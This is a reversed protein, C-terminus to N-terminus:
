SSKDSTAKQGIRQRLHELRAQQTQSIQAQTNKIETTKNQGGELARVTEEDLDSYRVTDLNIKLYCSKGVGNSSRTKLFQVKLIGKDMMAKDQYLTFVNDATNIKSIGGAIMGQHHQEEGVGGRNLQSATICCFNYIRSLNRLDEAVYKDRLFQNNNDVSKDRPAVLDLYDVAVIAPTVGTVTIFERIYAEIEITSTQAPFNKVWLQGASRSKVAITSAVEDLHAFIERGDFGSVMSDFRKCIMAESLELSIYLAHEGREVWNLCVNALFFSKGGGSNAAAISLAGPEIGGYLLKDIDRFGMPKLNNVLMAKIRAKPDAWYSVGMDRKLSLLVADKIPEVLNDLENNSIKESAAFVANVVANFRCHAEVEDLIWSRRQPTIPEEPKNLSIGTSVNIIDLPPMDYYEDTYANIFEIVKSLGVGFFEPKLINRCKIYSDGDAILYEVLLKQKPDLGSM